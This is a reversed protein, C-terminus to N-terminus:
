DDKKGKKLREIAEDLWVGSNTSTYDDRTILIAGGGFEGQRMKSCTIAYEYSVYPYDAETLEQLVGQLFPVLNEDAAEETFLYWLDGSRVATLGTSCGIELGYKEFLAQAEKSLDKPDEVCYLLEHQAKTLPLTPCVTGQQYNNAM